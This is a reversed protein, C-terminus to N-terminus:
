DRYWVLTSERDFEQLPRSLAADTLIVMLFGGRRQWERGLDRYVTFGTSDYPKGDTLRLRREVGEFCLGRVGLNWLFDAPAPHLWPRSLNVAITLPRGLREAEDRLTAIATAVTTLYQKDNVTRGALPTWVNRVGLDCNDLFVASYGACCLRQAEGRVWLRYDDAPDSALLLVRGFYMDQPDQTVHVGAFYPKLREHKLRELVAFSNRAQEVKSWPLVQWLNTYGLAADTPAPFRTDGCLVHRIQGAYPRGETHHVFPQSKTWGEPLASAPANSTAQRILVTDNGLASSGACVSAALVFFRTAAPM